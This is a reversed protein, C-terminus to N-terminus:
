RTLKRGLFLRYGITGAVVAAAVIGIVNGAGTTPLNPTTAAPTVPTTPTPAAAFTVEQTCSESVATRDGKGDLTFHAVATIKYTGAAAYQHMQGEVNNTTLEPTKDGWDIVAHKFVAGNSQSTKFKDITVKRSQNDAVVHLLDCAYTPAPTEPTESIPMSVKVAFTVYGSYAFCGDLDGLSAGDQTIIDDSLKVTTQHVGDAAHSWQASGKVYKLTFNSDGYVSMTDNVTGPNANDATIFGIINMDNKNATPVLASFKVNKAVTKAQGGMLSADANNHVYARVIIEDGDEVRMRDQVNSGNISGAIFPREDGVVPNNTFSNFTVHDAGTCSSPTTCTYTPRDAPYFGAFATATTALALVTVAASAILRSTKM